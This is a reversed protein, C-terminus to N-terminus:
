TRFTSRIEESTLGHNVVACVAKKRLTILTEISRESSFIM